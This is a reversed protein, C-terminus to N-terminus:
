VTAQAIFSHILGGVRLGDMQNAFAHISHADWDRLHGDDMQTPHPQRNYVQSLQTNSEMRGGEWLFHVRNIVIQFFIACELRM